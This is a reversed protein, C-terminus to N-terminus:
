IKVFPIVLVILMQLIKRICHFMEVDSRLNLNISVFLFVFKLVFFVKKGSWQHWKEWISVKTAVAQSGGAGKEHLYEGGQAPQLGSCLAETAWEGPCLCEQRDPDQCDGGEGPGVRGGLEPLAAGVSSSSGAFTKKNFNLWWILWLWKM